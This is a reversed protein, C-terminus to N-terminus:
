DQRERLLDTIEISGIREKGRSFILSQINGAKPIPINITGNELYSRHTNGEDCSRLLLPDQMKYDAVVEQNSGLVRVGFNGAPHPMKGSVEKIVANDKIIEGDKVQLELVYISNNFYSPSYPSTSKEVRARMEEPTETEEQAKAVIGLLLLFLITIFRYFTKM